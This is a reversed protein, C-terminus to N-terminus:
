AAKLSWLTKFYVIKRSILNARQSVKILWDNLIFNHLEVKSINEDCFFGNLLYLQLYSKICHIPTIQIVEMLRLSPFIFDLTDYIEIAM